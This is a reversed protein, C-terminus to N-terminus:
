SQKRKLCFWNKFRKAAGSHVKIKPMIKKTKAPSLLMVLQRGESLPAQEVSGRGNLDEEVRKLLDFGINQHAM